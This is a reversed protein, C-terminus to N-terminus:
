NETGTAQLVAGEVETCEICRARPMSVTVTTGRGEASALAIQGDHLEVLRKSIALGLGTGQPKQIRPSQAQHFPQFLNALEAEPIGIGTDTVSIAMGNEAREAAVLVTGTRPTFKIANSLLNLLVQKVMREDAHLHPLDADIRQIIKIGAEQARQRVLRICAAILAVVDIEQPEVVAKNAELKSMDLIDNILDLLLVASDYIDGAYEASKEPSVGILRDRILQSFGIIANLPTRLEHSMNALFMSKAVNAEQARNRTEILDQEFQRQATIDFGICVVLLVGGKGDDLAVNSWRMLRRAGSKSIWFNVNPRPFHALKPQDLFAALKPYDEPPIVARMVEPDALEAESYGSIVQAYKNARILRGERDYVTIAADVSDLVLGVLAEQPVPLRPRASSLRRVLQAGVVGAIVGGL